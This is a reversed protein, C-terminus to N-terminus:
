GNGLTRCLYSALPSPGFRATSGGRQRFGSIKPAVTGWGAVPASRKRWLSPQHQRPDTRHLPPTVRVRGLRHSINLLSPFRRLLPSLAVTRIASHTTQLVAILRRRTVHAIDAPELSRFQWQPQYAGAEVIKPM